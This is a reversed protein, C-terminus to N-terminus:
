TLPPLHYGYVKHRQVFGASAYLATAAPNDSEHMVIATELGQQRMLHMTHRMLAKALGLKRFAAHTGVPEFYGTKNLTDVWYICFAAFRGDPAVVVMEREADYGPSEMVRRYSEATWGSDFASSHVEALAAAEEVGKASRISFGAPLVPEPLDDALPQTTFMLIEDDGGRVFGRAELMNQIRTDHDWGDIGQDITKPYAAIEKRTHALAWDLIEAELPTEVYDPHVLWDFGQFKGYCAAFGVLAGDANHWLGVFHQPERSRMGNFIRHPVDGPHLMAINGSIHATQAVLDQMARIDDANEYFRMTTPNM